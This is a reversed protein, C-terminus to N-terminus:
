TSAPERIAALEIQVKVAFAETRVNPLRFTIKRIRTAQPQLTLNQLAKCLIVWASVASTMCLRAILAGYRIQARTWMSRIPPPTTLLASVRRPARTMKRGLLNILGVACELTSFARAVGSKLAPTRPEM